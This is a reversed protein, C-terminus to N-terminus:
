DTRQSSYPSSTRPITTRNGVPILFKERRALIWVLQPVWGTKEETTLPLLAVAVYLNVV